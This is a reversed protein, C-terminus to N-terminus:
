DLLAENRGADRKRDGFETAGRVGEGTREQGQEIPPEAKVIAQRGFVNVDKKM